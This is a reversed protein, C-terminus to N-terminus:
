YPSAQLALSPNSCRKGGLPDILNCRHFANANMVEAHNRRSADPFVSIGRHMGSKVERTDAIDRLPQTIVCTMSTHVTRDRPTRSLHRTRYALATQCADSRFNV